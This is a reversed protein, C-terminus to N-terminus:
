KVWLQHPSFSHMDKALNNFQFHIYNCSELKFENEKFDYDLVKVM